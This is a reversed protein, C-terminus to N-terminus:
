PRRRTAIRYHRLAAEADDWESLLGLMAEFRAEFQERRQPGAQRALADYVLGVCARATGLATM